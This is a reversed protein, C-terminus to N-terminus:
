EIGDVVKWLLKGYGNTSNFLLWLYPVQYKLGEVTTVYAKSVPFWHSGDPRTASKCYEECDVVKKIYFFGFEENFLKEGEFPIHKRKKWRTVQKM